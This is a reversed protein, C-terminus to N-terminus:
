QRAIYSSYAIGFGAAALFIVIAVNELQFWRQKAPALHLALMPVILSALLLV